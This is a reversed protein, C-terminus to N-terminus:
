DVVILEGVHITAQGNCYSGVHVWSPPLPERSNFVQFRRTVLPASDDVIAYIAPRGANNIKTLVVKSDANMKFDFINPEVGGQEEVSPEEPEDDEDDELEDEDPEVGDPDVPAVPSSPNLAGSHMEFVFKEVTTPM